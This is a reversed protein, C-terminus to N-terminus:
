HGKEAESRAVERGDSRGGDGGGDGHLDSDDSGLSEKDVVEM